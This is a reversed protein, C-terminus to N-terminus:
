KKLIKRTIHNGNKSLIKLFYVGPPEEINITLLNENKFEKSLITKGLSNLLLLTGNSQNEELEIMVKGKTPNPYINFNYQKKQNTNFM